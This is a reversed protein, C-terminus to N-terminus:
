RLYEGNPDFVYIAHLRRDSVYLNDQADTAIYAPAALKTNKGDAIDGFSFQYRGENSFVRVVDAKTDTAYVLDGRGIAVGVPRTLADEGPPGSISFMYEPPTVEEQAQLTPLKLSRNKMYSYTAWVVLALLLMLLVLVVLKRITAGRSDQGGQPFEEKPMVMPQQAM